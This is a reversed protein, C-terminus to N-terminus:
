KEKLAMELDQAAEDFIRELRGNAGRAGNVVRRAWALYGSKREESWTDPPSKVLARFNSIKDAIKIMKARTSKAPTKEVQLAKRRQKPLSKDDTVEAVLDAVDRNFEHELEAFRTETDELTDHLVAAAILNPDAGDTAASVLAAVEALHNIYPENRCGKRRQDTHREAAFAYARAVLVANTM